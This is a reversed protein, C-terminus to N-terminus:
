DEQFGFKLNAEHETMFTNTVPDWVVGLSEMDEQTLDILEEINYDHMLENSLRTNVSPAAPLDRMDMLPLDRQEEHAMTQRIFHNEAPDEDFWSPGKLAQDPSIRRPKNLVVRRAPPKTKSPKPQPKPPAVTPQEITETILKQFNKDEVSQRVVVQADVPVTLFANSDKDQMKVNIIARPFTHPPIFLISVEFEENLNAWDTPSFDRCGSPHRHLVVNHKRNEGDEAMPYEEFQVTVTSVKQKPLYYDDDIVFTGTKYDMKGSMFIGYELNDHKMSERIKNLADVIGQPISIQLNRKYNNVDLFM